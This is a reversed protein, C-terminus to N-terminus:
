SESNMQETIATEVERLAEGLGQVHRGGAQAIHQRGGGGGGICAAARKVIHGAHLGHHALKRSVSVVLLPKADIEAGLAVVGQGLRDQLRDCMDRMMDLNRAPVEALVCAIGKIDRAALAQVQDQAQRQRSAQLERRLQGNQALLSQVSQVLMDPQTKLLAAAEQMHTFATATYANAAQGTVAEIRRQGAASSSESVIHFTGIAATAAVHMGGCLEQSRFPGQGIRIVRVVDDYKEGFLAMAGSAVAKGYPEWNEGVPANALIDEQVAAQAQRIEEPTLARAFTFDFRLREPTVASGAQHVTNGLMRRLEAHLLHTATHNREIARRRETDIRCCAADGTRPAGATVTGTHVILGSLPRRVDEVQLSWGPCIDPGSGICGTDSLQGGAEVYFPTAAVIVEVQEGVQATDIAEGDRILALIRTDTQATRDYIAHHVGAAPLDQREQLHHLIDGYVSAASLTQPAAALRSRARALASLEQFRDEDVTMGQERALDRTLDFPFGFTDWLLFSQEGAIISRGEQRNTEVMTELHTLGQHLTRMFRAEEATVTECIFDRRQAIEQFHAGMEDIVCEVVQAMFPEHFGLMRGFRAARRLILRTIYNRGENGPLVGDSILFTIARSHDAIVRYPVLQAQRQADTQGAMSQVRDMITVFADTDYTNDCAQLISAVRELGAGTDVGPQALPQLETASVQDFQMFVLNWFELYEDDRNVGDAHQAALDGWYYHIESCPGCPGTDGMSWWNDRRDFPLIRSPDAGVDRWLQAAEDDEEYVSFWLRELPLAWEEVLLAWAFRIAEAKFYDGFSFNGLMEFFTHHRPSVGVEELDNHKGSVRLCKQSTVARQYPRTELGLLADKFQVMGANTFLLTDDNDPVLNGSPVFRHGRQEFFTIFQRRIRNIGPRTRSEPISSM